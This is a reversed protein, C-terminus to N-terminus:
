HYGRASLYTYYSSALNTYYTYYSSASATDGYGLYVYYYGTAEYTYLCYYASALYGYAAYYANLANAYYIYYYGLGVTDLGRAKYGAQVSLGEFYYYYYGANASDGISYFYSQYQVALAHYKQEDTPPAGYLYQAGAIDDSTLGDLSSETSNMQAQVSQGHDDPHDLGLVHGLEHLVVRRFDNLYGGGSTTTLNGRYSNWPKTNNFTVDAETTRGGSFKQSTVALTSSGFSRGFVNSSWHITNIGDSNNITGATTNYYFQVTSINSNWIAMANQAVVDWSASGDILTGSPAGLRLNMVLHGAPWAQGDTYWGKASRTAPVLLCIALFLRFILTRM